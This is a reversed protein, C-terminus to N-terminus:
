ARLAFLHLNSLMGNTTISDRIVERPSEMLLEPLWLWPRARLYRWRIKPPRLLEWGALELTKRATDLTFFQAHEPPGVYPVAPGQKLLKRFNPLQIYMVGGPAMRNRLARLYGIPDQFHEVVQAATVADLPPLWDPFGDPHVSWFAEFGRQRTQEIAHRSIDTGYPTWGLQRAAHLYYGMSCGIDLLSGPPQRLESLYGIWRRARGVRFRWRRDYTMEKYYDEDYRSEIDTAYTEQVESRGMGCADCILVDINNHVDWRRFSDGGCLDCPRPM